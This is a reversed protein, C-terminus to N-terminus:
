IFVQIVFLAPRAVWVYNVIQYANLGNANIQQLTLKFHNFANYAHMQIQHHACYVSLWMVVINLQFQYVSEPNNIVLIDM